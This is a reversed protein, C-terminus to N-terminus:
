RAPTDETYFTPRSFYGSKESSSAQVKGTYLMPLVFLIVKSAYYFLVSEKSYYLHKKGSAFFRVLRTAAREPTIALLNFLIRNLGTPGPYGKLIGTHVPGLTVSQYCNTKDNLSLLKFADKLNRKSLYYAIHQPNPIINATSSICSITSHTIGLKRIAGVFTMVGLVNTELIAKFSEYDLGNLNDPRNIGANLIFLDPVGGELQLGALFAHVKQYDTIDLIEFQCKPHQAEMEPTSRRNICIIENAQVYYKELLAKGIGSTTGTILVRNFQKM